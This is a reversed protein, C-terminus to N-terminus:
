FTRDPAVEYTPLAVKIRVFNSINKALFIFDPPFVPVPVKKTHAFGKTVPLSFISSTHTTCMKRPDM